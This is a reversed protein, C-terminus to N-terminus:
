GDKERRSVADELAVRPFVELAGGRTANYIKVGHKGAYEALKEYAMISRMRRYEGLEELTLAPNNLTRRARALNVKDLDSVTYGETFHGTTFSNTCDTGLLYIEKIGMFMAMEIMFSMVTARAPIYYALMDGRIQYDEQSYVNAYVLKEPHEKMARYAVDHTVMLAEVHDTIEQYLNKTYIIDVIFHYTPRWKTRDFLKYVMNCGFSLEGAILDLDEPTLSPGNGILFCRQGAYKNELSKLLRTNKDRILGARRLIGRLNLCFKKLPRTVVRGRKRCVRRVAQLTLTKKVVNDPMCREIVRQGAYGDDLPSYKRNFAEYKEDYRFERLQKLVAAALDKEETVIIGPLDDFDINVGQLESTYLEKDFMYYVMPRRLLAFDFIVGSYDSILM